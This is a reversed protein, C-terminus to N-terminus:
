GCNLILNDGLGGDVQTPFRAKVFTRKKASQQKDRLACPLKNLPGM